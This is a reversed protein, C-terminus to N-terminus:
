NLRDGSLALRVRLRHTMTRSVALEIGPAVRVKCRGGLLPRCGVVAEPRLLIDRQIRMLGAEPFAQEVEKLTDWRTQLHRGPTHAWVHKDIVEFYTVHKLELLLTGEGARVAIRQLPPLIQKWDAGNLRRVQKAQLRALTKALREEFVPKLLYDVAAAEFARLAYESFATVFVVPPPDSLEALIELGNPGPMQIDLFLADVPPHVGMWALLSPGDEFEALVECEAECLLRAMRERALPEDDAVLVQLRTM